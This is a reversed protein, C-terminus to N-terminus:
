FRTIAILLTATASTISVARTIIRDLDLGQGEPETPVHVVSGPTIEPNSDFFFTRERRVEREGNPYEVSIREEDAEQLAGGAQSLYDGLDWGDQYPVRADFAVAGQVRVTPDYRPFVLSDGDEVPLDHRGGPSELARRIDIGVPLSDRVLRSGELYADETPGGARRVLQSVTEERTELVYWGPDRVEGLVQVSAIESYGPLMRVIVQDDAELPVDAAPVLRAADGEPRDPISDGPYPIEGSLAVLTRTTLTDSRDVTVRRRVVEARYPNAGRVFGGAALVLDEATMGRALPYRGEDRVPGAVEVSDAANLSDVSFVTVRDLDRLELDDPVDPRDSAGVDVRLLETSGDSRNRRRVHARGLYASPELGGARAVLGRVTEGELYEYTGPRHVDGRISVRNWREESIDLVAVRDGERLSVDAVGARVSDLSVDLFVRERGPAREEPPLIRDIQVREASADPQLGGAFRLLDAMGEAGRLEYVAPRRVRGRLTVRAGAPPVFVIDGQNLRVDRSADGSVLYDYLDVRAAVEGARRVRVDRFSGEVTPGGARHLANFVTAVSSLQYAGPSEV